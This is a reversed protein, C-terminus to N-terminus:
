FTQGFHLIRRCTKEVWEKRENYVTKKSVQIMKQPKKCLFKLGEWKKLHKEMSSLNQVGGQLNESVGCLNLLMEYTRQAVYWM